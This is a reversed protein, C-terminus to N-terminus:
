KGSTRAFRVVCRSKEWLEVDRGDIFQMAKEIAEQDDACEFLRSVGAHHVVGMLDPPLAISEIVSHHRSRLPSRYMSSVQLGPRKRKSLRAKM